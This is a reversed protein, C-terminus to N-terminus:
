AEWQWTINAAPDVGISILARPALAIEERIAVYALHLDLRRVRLDDDDVVRKQQEVGEHPAVQQWFAIYDDNVFCVVQLFLSRPTEGNSDALGLDTRQQRLAHEFRVGRGAQLVLCILYHHLRPLAQFPYGIRAELAPGIQL